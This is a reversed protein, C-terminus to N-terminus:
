GRALPACAAVACLSGLLELASTREIIHPPPPFPSSRKRKASGGGRARACVASIRRSSCPRRERARRRSLRSSPATFRRAAMTSRCRVLLHLLEEQVRERLHAQLHEARRLAAAVAALPLAGAPAPPRGARWGACAAQPPRRAAVVQRGSSSQRVRGRRRRAWTSRPPPPPPLSARARWGAAGSGRGARPPSLAAAPRPPSCCRGV